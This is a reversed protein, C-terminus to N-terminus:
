APILSPDNYNRHLEEPSMTTINLKRRSLACTGCIFRAKSAGDHDAGIIKMVGVRECPDVNMIISGCDECTAKVYPAPLPAPETM